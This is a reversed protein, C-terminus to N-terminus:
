QGSERDLKEKRAAWIRRMADSRQKNRQRELAEELDADQVSITETSESPPITGQGQAVVPPETGSKAFLTGDHRYSHGDQIFGVNPDGSVTGYSRKRDLKDIESM